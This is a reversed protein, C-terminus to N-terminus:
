MKEGQIAKKKNNKSLADEEEAYSMFIVPVPVPKSAARMLSERVDLYLGVM